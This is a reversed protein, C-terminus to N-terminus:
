SLEVQSEIGLGILLNRVTNRHVYEWARPSANSNHPALMVNKLDLLPSDHPLPEVDFVDLAAGAISEAQLARVLAREDVIAGRATNILYATRKMQNLEKEGILHFSTPNLDCNLSVYDSECYIKEKPVTEMGTEDLFRQPIEVIDNGLVKMGFALARRVVQKGVNGVGIVGLTCEGLSSAPTKKWIGNRMQKDLSVLKRAFCLVYGLVSDAVPGSFADPTNFVKIGLRAAAQKDISDTGTGWKSIVKLRSAKRLVSDTFQDDGCIVGDIEAVLELLEQESLRERVKPLVVEIRHASFVDAFQRVVPQFYPASVLVDFKSNQEVM